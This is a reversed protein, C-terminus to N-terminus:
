NPKTNSTAGGGSGGIRGARLRELERAPGAELRVRLLGEVRFGREADPLVRLRDDGLFAKLAARREDAAGELAARMECIRQEIQPRLSEADLPEAELELLRSRVDAEETRLRALRRKVDEMDVSGDEIADLMRERAADIQALRERLKEPDDRSLTQRIETLATQVAYAVVEPVLVQERIAGLVRAELDAASVRLASVCARPGRDRSWGCGLLGTGHVDFFGGGCIGCRLFGTLLHRGRHRYPPHGRTTKFAGGSQRQYTSGKSRKIAQESTDSGGQSGV